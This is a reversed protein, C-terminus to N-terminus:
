EVSIVSHGDRYGSEASTSNEYDPLWQGTAAGQGEVWFRYLYHGPPLRL